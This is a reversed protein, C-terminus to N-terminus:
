DALDYEYEVWEHEESERYWWWGEDDKWWEIGDEDFYHNEDIEEELNPDDLGSEASIAQKMKKLDDDEDGFARNQMRLQRDNDRDDVSDEEDDAFFENAMKAKFEDFEDRGFSGTFSDGKAAMLEDLNVKKGSKLVPSDPMDDGYFLDEEDSVKAWTRGNPDAAEAEEILIDHEEEDINGEEYQKGIIKVLQELSRALKKESENEEIIKDIQKQLREFPGGTIAGFLRGLGGKKKKAM